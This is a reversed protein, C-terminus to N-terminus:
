SFQRAQIKPWINIFYDMKRVVSGGFCLPVLYRCLRVLDKDLYLSEWFRYKTFKISRLKFHVGFNAM